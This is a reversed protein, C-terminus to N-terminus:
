LTLSCVQHVPKYTGDFYTRNCETNIYLTGRRRMTLRYWALYKPLTRIVRILFLLKRTAYSVLSTSRFLPFHYCGLSTSVFLLGHHHAPIKGQGHHSRGQSPCSKTHTSTHAHTCAYTHTHTHIYTHNTECVAEARIGWYWQRLFEKGEMIWM